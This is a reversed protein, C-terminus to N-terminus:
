RSTQITTVRGGEFYVYDSAYVWQIREGAATVTTNVRGPEGWAERVMDPTMGIQVAGRMIANVQAVTWGRARLAARRTRAEAAARQEAERAEAAQRALAAALDAQRARAMSDELFALRRAHAAVAAGAAVLEQPCSANGCPYRMAAPELRGSTGAVLLASSSRDPTEGLLRIVDPEELVEAFPGYRLTYRLEGRASCRVDVLTAPITDQAMLAEGAADPAQNTLLSLGYEESVSGLLVERTTARNARVLQVASPWGIPTACPLGVLDPYRLLLSDAFADRTQAALPTVGIVVTLVLGFRMKM